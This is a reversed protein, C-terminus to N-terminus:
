NRPAWYHHPAWAEFTLFLVMVIGLIILLVTVFDPRWSHPEDEPMQQKM